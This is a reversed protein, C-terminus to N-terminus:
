RKRGDRAELELDDFFTVSDARTSLAVKGAGPFTDDDAEFLRKGDLSVVFHKGRAELKLAHWQDAAVEVKTGAIRSRKGEVVKHLAVSGDLADAEAVYYDDPDRLRVALGAARGVKGQVVKFRVAAVVNRATTGDFICLPFRDATEETSSQALMRPPSPATPDEAIMWAVPGGEGTLAATFGAPMSGPESKGFGVVKGEGVKKEPPKREVIKKGAAGALVVALCAALSMRWAFVTM